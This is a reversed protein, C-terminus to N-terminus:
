RLDKPAEAGPREPIPRLARAGERSRQVSYRRGDLGVGPGAKTHARERREKRARAEEYYSYAVSGIGIGMVCLVMLGVVIWSIIDSLDM